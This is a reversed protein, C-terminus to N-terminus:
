RMARYTILLRDTEPEIERDQDLVPSAVVDRLAVAYALAHRFPGAHADPDFPELAELEDLAQVGRAALDGLLSQLEEVRRDILELQKRFGRQASISDEVNATYKRAETLAQEGKGNLVLGGVLMTPGITVFNLAVAGLAMGGGGSAVAGGGLWAMTANHAAAGSLGAIATGTSASGAAAVALPIGSYTAAGAVAAMTLQGALGEATLRGGTFSELRREGIVIGDLLESAREAVRQENRRLFDAMRIVVMDVCESQREGYDHISSNTAAVAGRTDNLEAEYREEAAAAEGKARRRKIEGRTANAAGVLGTVIGTGILVVPVVLDLPNRGAPQATRRDM